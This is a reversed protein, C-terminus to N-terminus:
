MKYSIYKLLLEKMKERPPDVNTWIKFADAGQHVLMDLGNILNCGRKKAEYLFVTEQPNYVLDCVWMDKNFYESPLPSEKQLYGNMGVPTANVILSSQKIAKEIDKPPINRINDIGKSQYTSIIQQSREQNRNIINVESAGLEILGSIAARAAGGAGLVSVIKGKSSFGTEKISRMFGMIDTNYGITRGNEVLVTNVAGIIQANKDVEHLISIIEEKYPVTVNFGRTGIAVLGKVGDELKESKVDFALYVYNLELLKFLHNHMIPSFSHGIPSGIIGTLITKADITSNM